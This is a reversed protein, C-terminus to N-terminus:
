SFVQIKYTNGLVYLLGNNLALAQPHRVDAVITKTLTAGDPSLVLVRNQASDAIIIGGDLDFEVDYPDRVFGNAVIRVFAGALTFLSLRNNDREAILVSTGDPTIRLGDCSRLTEPDTGFVGFSRVLMGSAYDFVFVQHGVTGWKGAVIVAGNAHLGCIGDDLVGEGIARLRVGDANVEVVRRGVSEAILLKDPASFCMKMPSELGGFSRLLEGSPLQFVHVDHYTMRSLALLNGPPNVAMGWGM